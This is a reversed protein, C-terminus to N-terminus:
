PATQTWEQGGIQVHSSGGVIGTNGGGYVNKDIRTHGIINVLTHHAVEGKLGGGYVCQDIHANDDTTVFTNGEVNSMAGGGYLSGYIHSNGNVTIKADQMVKGLHSLVSDTHILHETENLASTYSGENSWRYQTPAPLVAATFLGTHADFSPYAVPPATYVDVTPTSASFGGAYADGRVVTSNLVSIASGDVTGLNGGGYFNSQVLCRQLTSYVNKSKAMDFSAYILYFRGVKQNSGSGAWVFYEFEYGTAIGNSTHIGRQYNGIWNAFTAADNGTLRSSTQNLVRHLSTGGNGAGFYSGFVTGDALTTVTKDTAMNGFKAGGCYKDVM